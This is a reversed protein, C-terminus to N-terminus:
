VEKAERLHKVVTAMKATDHGILTPSPLRCRNKLVRMEFVNFLESGISIASELSFCFVASIWVVAGHVRYVMTVAAM